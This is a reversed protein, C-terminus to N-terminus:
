QVIFLLDQMWPLASVALGKKEFHSHGLFQLDLLLLQPFGHPCPQWVLHHPSTAGRPRLQRVPLRPLAAERSSIARGESVAVVSGDASALGQPAARWRPRWASLSAWCCRRVGGRGGNAWASGAPGCASIELARTAAGDSKRQIQIGYSPTPRHRLLAHLPPPPPDCTLLLPFSRCTSPN